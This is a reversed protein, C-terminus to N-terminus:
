RDETASRLLERCHTKVATRRAAAGRELFASAESGGIRYLASAADIRIQDEKKTSFFREESLIKGLWPVAEPAALKGIALIAERKVRYDEHSTARMLCEVAAHDGIEGLIICLNRVYYWKPHSMRHIAEPVIATGMRALLRIMSRRRSAEPELLLQDLLPKAASSGFRVLLEVMMDADDGEIDGSVYLHAIHQFDTADIIEQVKAGWETRAERLISDLGLLIAHVTSFDKQSIINPIAKRFDELIDLFDEERSELRLVELLVLLTKRRTEGEGFAQGIGLDDEPERGFRALYSERISPLEELFRHHDDQIYKEEGRSLILTEVAEWTKQAYYDKVKRSERVRDEVKALLSNDQNREGALIAFSMRLREGGKGELSLLNSILDLFEADSRGDSLARAIVLDYPVDEGAAKPADPGSTISSLVELQREEPLAQLVASLRGLIRRLVDGTVPSGEAPRPDGRAEAEKARRLIAQFLMPTRVLEERIRTEDGRDSSDSTLLLRWLDEERTSGPPGSGDPDVIKRSLLERYNFPSLSIGRVGMDRLFQEPSRPSSKDGSDHLYRFLDLLGAPTLDHGFGITAVQRLYLSEALRGILEQGEGLFQNRYLLKDRAIGLFLQDDDERSIRDLLAAHLEGVRKALTPHNEGYLGAWHYTKALALVLPGVEM